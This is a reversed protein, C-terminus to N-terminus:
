KKLAELIEAARARGGHSQSIKSFRITRQGDIVFASPYATEKPADWRLGYSNTFTYGPDLLIQFNEPLTKGRIFEDARQKLGESPGPYVLVVRSRADQFKQAKSMLEGVQATCIPCQYGPYGRLVVLVVPGKQSLESLKVKEGDLSDLEFDPAMDGVKPTVAFADAPTVAVIIMAAFWGFAGALLMPGIKKNDAHDV